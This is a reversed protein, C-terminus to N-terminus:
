PCYNTQTHTHTHMGLYKLPRLLSVRLVLTRKSLLDHLHSVLAPPFCVCECAVLTALLKFLYYGILM